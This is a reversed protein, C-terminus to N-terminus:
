KEHLYVHIALAEIRQMWSAKDRIIVDEDEAAGIGATYLNARGVALGDGRGCQYEFADPSYDESLYGNHKLLINHLICCLYFQQEMIEQKHWASWNKLCKFKKKLIGFVDEIDKRVSMIKKALNKIFENPNHPVPCILSPWHLYGGNVILYFGRFQVITKNPKDCYWYKSCM